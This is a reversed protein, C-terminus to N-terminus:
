FLSGQAAPPMTVTRLEAAARLAARQLEWGEACARGRTASLQQCTSCLKSHARLAAKADNVASRARTAPTSRRSPM